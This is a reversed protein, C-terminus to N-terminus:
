LRGAVTCSRFPPEGLHWRRALRDAAAQGVVSSWKATVKLRGRRAHLFTRAFGWRKGSADFPWEATEVVIGSGASQYCEVQNNAAISGYFTFGSYAAVLRGRYIWYPKAQVTSAGHSIPVVVTSGQHRIRVLAGLAPEPYTRAYDRATRVIGKDPAPLVAAYTRHRTKVVVLFGCTARARPAYHITVRDRRGDGDVDGRLLGGHPRLPLSPAQQLRPCPAFRSLAAPQSPSGLVTALAIVLAVM